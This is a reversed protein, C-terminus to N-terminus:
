LPIVFLRKVIGLVGVFARMALFHSGFAPGKRLTKKKV